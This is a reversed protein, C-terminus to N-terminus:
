GRRGTMRLLQDLLGRTQADAVGDHRAPRYHLQFAAVVRATDADFDGAIELDYGVAALGRRLARVEAGSDSTKLAPGDVAGVQPMLGVGAAALRAWPFYPGPDIKRGPSVDSHALVREPPIPHRALIARCLVIAADIQADPFEPAASLPGQNAIEIGISRSNIDDQGDWRAAGAHWARRDEDVLAFIRGTEDVLYHASVESAPDCLWDCAAGASPLATYHMLLIDVPGCRRAGHNPSALPILSPAGASM